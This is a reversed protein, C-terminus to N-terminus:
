TSLVGLHIATEHGVRLAFSIRDPHATRAAQVAQSLTTGVFYDGSTPEIAVFANPHAAELQARLRTNYIEKAAHTVALTQQLVM